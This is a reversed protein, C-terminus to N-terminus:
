QKNIKRTSLSFRQVVFKQKDQGNESMIISDEDQYTDAASEQYKEPVSDFFQPIQHPEPTQLKTKLNDPKVPTLFLNSKNKPLLKTEQLNTVRYPISETM